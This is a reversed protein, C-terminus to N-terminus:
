SQSKAIKTFKGCTRERCGRIARVMNFHDEQEETLSTWMVVARKQKLQDRIISDNEQALRREAELQSKKNRQEVEETREKEWPVIM